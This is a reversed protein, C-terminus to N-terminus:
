QNAILERPGSPCGYMFIPVGHHFRVVMGVNTADYGIWQVFPAFQCPICSEFRHIGSDFGPAKPWVQRIGLM